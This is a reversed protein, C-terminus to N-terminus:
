PEFPLKCPRVQTPSAELDINNYEQASAPTMIGVFSCGLGQVRCGLSIYFRTTEM